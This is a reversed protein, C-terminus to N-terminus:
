QIYGDNKILNSVRDSEKIKPVVREFYKLMYELRKDENDIELLTQREHLNLGSKEAMSFAVSRKGDHWKLDSLNIKQINGKYVLQVLENYIIVSKEMKAKDFNSNEDTIFEIKGVYYGEPSLEYHNVKYRNLGKTIINMEGTELRNVVKDVSASCGILYLKRDAFLNIGFVSESDICENIMKKYREEFIYLPLKSFPFLVVNLPFLPIEAEEDM